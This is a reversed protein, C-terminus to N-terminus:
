TQYVEMKTASAGFYKVLRTPFAAVPLTPLNYRFGSAIEVFYVAEPDFLKQVTLSKSIMATQNTSASRGTELLEPVPKNLVLPLLIHFICDPM